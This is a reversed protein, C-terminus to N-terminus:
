QEAQESEEDDQMRLIEGALALYARAGLSSKDYYYVPKGYSPSEALRVNRPIITQYVSGKFNEKLNDSVDSALKARKDFMTRLIGEIRLRPNLNDKIQRVTDMLDTLGEMAFYECQMPVIVSDAACLANVTLLNLAPPCDIFIFDYNDRIAELANKLRNERAFFNMLRVGAATLDSNGPLIDYGGTESHLIVESAPTGDIIVDYISKKLDFKSIGSAMTANGQPDMDAILVKKQTALSAALNICTTTKGVGGKQNALAIIKSV